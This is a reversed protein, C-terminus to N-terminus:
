RTSKRDLALELGQRNHFSLTQRLRLCYTAPEGPQQLPHAVLNDTLREPLNGSEDSIRVPLRADANLAHELDQPSFPKTIFDSASRFLTTYPFLTTRPPPRCM